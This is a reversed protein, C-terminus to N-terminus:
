HRENATPLVMYFRLMHGGITTDKEMYWRKERPALGQNAGRRLRM